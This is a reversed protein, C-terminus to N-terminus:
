VLFESDIVIKILANEELLRWISKGDIGARLYKCPRVCKKTKMGSTWSTQLHSVFTRM